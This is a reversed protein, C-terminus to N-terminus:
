VKLRNRIVRGLFCGLLDLPTTLLLVVFIPQISGSILITLLQRDIVGILAPAAM